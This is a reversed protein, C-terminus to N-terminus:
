FILDAGRLRDFGDLVVVDASRNIFSHDINYIISHENLIYFDRLIKQGERLKRSIGASLEFFSIAPFINLYPGGIWGDHFDKYFSAAPSYGNADAEKLNLLASTDWVFKTM